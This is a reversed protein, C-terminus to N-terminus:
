FVRLTQIHNGKEWTANAKEYDLIESTNSQGRGAGGVVLVVSRGGHMQSKFVTCALSSRKLLMNPGETFGDAFFSMNVPNFILVDPLETKSSRETKGGIIMVRGDTLKVMCHAERRHPLNPGRTVVGSKSILDTTFFVKYADNGGTVWLKGNLEVGGALSRRRRLRAFLRWQLNNYLTRELIHCERVRDFNNLSWGGCIVPFGKVLAGVSYTTPIPYDPIQPCKKSSM